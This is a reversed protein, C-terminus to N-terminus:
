SNGDAASCRGVRGTSFGGRRTSSLLAQKEPCQTREPEEGQGGYCLAPPRNEGPRGGGGPGHLRLDLRTPDCLLFRFATASRCLCEPLGFM